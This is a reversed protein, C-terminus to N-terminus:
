SFLRFGRVASCEWSHFMQRLAGCPAACRRVRKTKPLDKTHVRTASQKGYWRRAQVRRWAHVPLCLVGCHCFQFYTLNQPNAHKYELIMKYTQRQNEDSKLSGEEIGSISLRLCIEAWIRRSTNRM